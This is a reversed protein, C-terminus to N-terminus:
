QYPEILISIERGLLETTIRRGIEVRQVIYPDGPDDTFYIRVWVYVLNDPTTYLHYHNEEDDLPEVRISHRSYHNEEAYLNTESEYFDLHLWFEEDDPLIWVTVNHNPEYYPDLEPNMQRQFWYIQNVLEITAIPILILLLFIVIQKKYGSVSKKLNSSEEM